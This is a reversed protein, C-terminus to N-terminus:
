GGAKPHTEKMVFSLITSIVLAILLPLAAYQALELSKPDIGADLGMGIRVGPRSILIGGMIFMTGNVIAASTGIQQPAVVDAATSFALMHVANGFGFVFCLAMAAHTGMSPAYLILAIAGLQVLTGLVIPLKRRRLRDSWAPIAFCGAALGLWLLSATWTATVSISAPHKNAPPRRISHSWMEHVSVHRTASM